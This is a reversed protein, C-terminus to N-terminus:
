DHTCRPCGQSGCGKHCHHGICNEECVEYHGGAIMLRHGEILARAIKERASIYIAQVTTRAVDMQKACDAQDLGLYDILRITEYEDLSLTIAEHKMCGKPGFEAVEPLACIRRKKVPRPM